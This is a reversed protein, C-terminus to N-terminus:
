PHLINCDCGRHFAVQNVVRFLRDRIDSNTGYNIFTKNTFLYRGGAPLFGAASVVAYLPRKEPFTELPRFNEILEFELSNQIAARYIPSLVCVCGPQFSGGM